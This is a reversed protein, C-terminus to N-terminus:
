REDRDQLASFVAREPVFFEQEVANAEEKDSNNEFEADSRQQYEESQCAELQSELEQYEAEVVGNEM